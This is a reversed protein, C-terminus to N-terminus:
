AVLRHAGGTGHGLAGTQSAALTATDAARLAADLAMAGIDPGDSGLESRILAFLIPDSGRRQAPHRIAPATKRMFSDCPPRFAARRPHTALQLGSRVRGASFTPM